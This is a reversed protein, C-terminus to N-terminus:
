ITQIYKSYSVRIGLNYTGKKVFGVLSGKSTDQKALQTFRNLYSM